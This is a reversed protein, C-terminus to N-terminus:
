SLAPGGDDSSASGHARVRATRSPDGANTTAATVSIPPERGRLLGAIRGGPRSRRRRGRVGDGGAGCRGGGDAARGGGDGGAERLSRLRHRPRVEVAQPRRRRHDARHHHYAPSPLGLLQQLLVHAATAHFLDRGRVVHTVGQAADDVVVSLHYSTPTESRALIFDGWAAPDAAITGTEGDPGRRGRALVLPGALPSRRTWASGSRMRRAPPSGGRRRPQTSTATPAPISRRATPTARGHRARRDRRRDRARSMFAPYVLGMAELEGCRRRTTTWISRSAASRSRGHSASGTSTAISRRRTNRGAAPRTSTRSACCSAAAPGGASSSTSSRRFPMASICNATRRPRSASFPNCRRCRGPKIRRRRRAKAAPLACRSGRHAIM